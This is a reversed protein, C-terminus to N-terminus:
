AVGMRTVILGEARLTNLRYRLADYVQGAAEIDSAGEAIETDDIRQDALAKALFMQGQAAGIPLNNDSTCVASEPALKGGILHFLPALRDLGYVEGIKMVTLMALSGKRNRANGITGASVGLRDATDQDSECLDLQIGAVISAVAALMSTQTLAVGRQMVNNSSRMM